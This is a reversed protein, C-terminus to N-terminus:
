KRDRYDESSAPDMEWRHKDRETVKESGKLEENDAYRVGLAQGIDDVLDQDPTPNDGGPAEDGSFYATEIDADVDGATVSEMAGHDHRRAATGARGTRVSSGRRAMDLSSPPTQVTDELTRRARDIRPAKRVAAKRAAAKRKPAAKQPTRRKPAPKRRPTKVARKAKARKIPRKASRAKKVPRGTTAKKAARKAIARKAM